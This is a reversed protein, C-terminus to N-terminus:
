VFQLDEEAFDLAAEVAALLNLLDDRLEQLPRAVGGALQALAQKLEDRSGAAIVGLVAEARTLDLKGALFARLTFEGPLAARAGAQLLQAVLLEVLPLCGLTHLEAIDQGTYSRPNPWFYLDAPLSSHVDPLHVAGPYRRRKVPDIPLHATFIEKVCALAAPGSLRVIARGAPQPASSLAVITDNIDAHM